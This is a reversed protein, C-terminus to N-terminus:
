PSTRPHATPEPKSIRPFGLDLDSRRPIQTANRKLIALHADLNSEIDALVADLKAKDVKNKTGNDDHSTYLKVNTSRDTDPAEIIAALWPLDYHTRQFRLMVELSPGRSPLVIELDPFPPSAIGFWGHRSNSDGVLDIEISKFAERGQLLQKSLMEIEADPFKVAITQYMSVSFSLAM